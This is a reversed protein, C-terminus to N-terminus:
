SAEETPKDSSFYLQRRYKIFLSATLSLSLIGFLLTMQQLGVGDLLLGTMLLAIQFLSRDAMNRFSFFRGHFAKPVKTQFVTAATPFFSGVSFGFIAFSLITIMPHYAFYLTLQSCGILISSGFLIRYVSQKERIKKVLFAGLLFAIGEVTYIWGKIAPNEQLESINMVILNFGGIFLIPIFTMFLTMCVVPLEKMVPFVDKFGSNADNKRHLPQKAKTEDINLFATFVFLGLYAFFSVIYITSLSVTVLLTGAIATGIIRSLTSVNMHLGNLQLLEKEKVVLPLSAQLAPFYFATVIHTVMLFIIMWWVSDTEIAIFMFIVSIARTFGSALMVTKKNLQDTLKGALPGFAIGAILGSAIILSKLFDSPVKDQMFELNGIISVWLGLGAIWEGSLLIWVNRNNWM